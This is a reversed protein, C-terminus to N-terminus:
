HQSPEHDRVPAQWGPLEATVATSAHEVEALARYLSAVSPNKGANKGSRIVLTKAFEPVPDAAATASVSV